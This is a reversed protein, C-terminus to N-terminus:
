RAKGHNDMAIGYELCRAPYDTTEIERRLVADDRSDLIAALVDRETGPVGYRRGLRQFLANELEAHESLRGGEVSYAITEMLSTCDAIWLVFSSSNESWEVEFICIQEFDGGGPAYIVKPSGGEKSFGVEFYGM